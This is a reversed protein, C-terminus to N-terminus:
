FYDRVFDRIQTKHNEALRRGFRELRRMNDPDANDMAPDLGEVAVEGFTGDIRLYQNRRGISEFVMRLQYDVTQSVGEMLIGFLPKVWGALGWNCCEPYTISEPKRGTGLSLIVMESLRVPKHARLGLAEVLACGAPNNAFVGGDIMPAANGIGDLNETFAAEFYTPAASTARAADRVYFERDPTKRADHQTFFFPQYKETNYATILCPRILESLRCDKFYFKLIRELVDTSYKEEALGGASVIVQWVSQEFIADGHDMYLALADAASFRARDPKDKHPVLFMCTLIGGTSTGAILDFCEGIKLTDDERHERLAREVEILVAAPIIGRIGGGDISLIRFIGEGEKEAKSRKKM